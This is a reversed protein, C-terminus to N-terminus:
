SKNSVKEKILNYTHMIVNFCNLLLNALNTSNRLDSMAFLIIFVIGGFLFFMRMKKLNRMCSGLAFSVSAVYPMVSVVGNMKEVEKQEREKYRM